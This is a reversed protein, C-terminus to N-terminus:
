VKSKYGQSLKPPINIRSKVTKLMPILKILNDYCPLVSPSKVSISRMIRSFDLILTSAPNTEESAERRPKYIAM